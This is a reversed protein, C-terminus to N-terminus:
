PPKQNSNLDKRRCGRAQLATQTRLVYFQIYELLQLNQCGSLLLFAALYELMVPLPSKLLADVIKSELPGVCVGKTDPILFCMSQFIFCPALFCIASCTALLNTLRRHECSVSRSARKAPGAPHKKKTLCCQHLM